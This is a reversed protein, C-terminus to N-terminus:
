QRLNDFCPLLMRNSQAILWGCESVQPSIYLFITGYSLFFFIFFNDFFFLIRCILINFLFRCFILRLFFLLTFSSFFYGLSFTRQWFITLYLFNNFSFAKSLEPHHKVRILCQWNKGMKRITPM